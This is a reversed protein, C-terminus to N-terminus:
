KTHNILKVRTIKIRIQAEMNHKHTMLWIQLKQRANCTTAQWTVNEAYDRQITLDLAPMHACLANKSDTAKTIVLLAYSELTFKAFVSAPLAATWARIRFTKELHFSLRHCFNLLPSLTYCHRNHSTFAQTQKIHKCKPTSNRWTKTM